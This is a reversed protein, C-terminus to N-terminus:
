ADPAAPLRLLLTMTDLSSEVFGHRLYFARASDNLAHALLARIGVERSLRLTRLVADRLLDAGLGRGRSDGDVALRGLVMVPIPDPMNRRIGGPAAVHAVSGAALAYYGKVAGQGDVVVFTRSAGSRQNALARRKLWDNLVAEGCDFRDLGHEPLLLIPLRPSM